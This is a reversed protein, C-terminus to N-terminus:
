KCDFKQNYGIWKYVNDLNIIFDNEQHYNLFGYFNQIFLEQQEINLSSKIKDLLSNDLHTSLDM